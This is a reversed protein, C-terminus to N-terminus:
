ALVAEVPAHDSLLLGNRRRRDEPWAEPGRELELGHALVHDIGAAPPSFGDASLATLTASREPEVNFDGCLVLPRGGALEAAWAAARALEADALRRDRASTAHLNAVVLERDGRLVVAQAVRRERAWVRLTGRDLGLDEGRESRFAAPNLPLVHQEALELRPTVVTAIGQGSFASRIVGHHPATLGRGVGAPLRVRRVGAPRAQATAVERKTWRAVLPLAWAPLEQLCLVDPDDALALELMTRLHARRGPPSSNGHFVNWTRVLLSM